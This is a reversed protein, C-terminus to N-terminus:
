HDPPIALGGQCLRPVDKDQSLILWLISLISGFTRMNVEQRPLYLSNKAELKAFHDVLENFPEGAHSRTHAIRLYDGPLTAELAQFAARLHRYPDSFSNSGVLGSAQGGVLQSDSVFVTPLRHNQSLRWLASWLLAETEAADSGIHSTGVHHPRDAEYLIQQCTLGIFELHPGDANFPGDYQEAFVAFCWSDSIDHLDTWLPSNHRRRCQSSGDTYIVLRDHRELQKCKQLASQIFEPVDYHSVDKILDIQPAMFFVHLEQCNFEILHDPSSNAFQKAAFPRTMNIQLPQNEPWPSRTRQPREEHEQHPEVNRFHLIIVNKSLTERHVIVAKHYGKQYLMKMHVIDEDAPKGHQVHIGNKATCDQNCYVYTM